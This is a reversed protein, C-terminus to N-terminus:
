EEAGKPGIVSNRVSLESGRLFEVELSNSADFEEVSVGGSFSIRTATGGENRVVRRTRYDYIYDYGTETANVTM